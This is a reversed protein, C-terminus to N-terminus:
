SLVRMVREHRGVEENDPLFSELKYALEVVARWITPEDMAKKAQRWVLRRYAEPNRGSNQLSKAALDINFYDFKATEQTRVPFDDAICYKCEAAPGAAAKIGYALLNWNFRGSNLARHARRDWIVTPYLKGSFGTILDKNEDGTIQRCMVIRALGCGLAYGVVARGAEHHTVSQVQGVYESLNDTVEHHPELSLMGTRYDCVTSTPYDM